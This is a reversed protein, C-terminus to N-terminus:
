SYREGKVLVRASAFVVMGCSAWMRVVIIGVSAHVLWGGCDSLYRCKTRHTFVESVYCGDRSRLLFAVYPLGDGDGDVGNGGNIMLDSQTTTNALLIM